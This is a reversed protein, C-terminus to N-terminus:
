DDKTSEHRVAIMPRQLRDAPPYGMEGEPEKRRGDLFWDANFNKSRRVLIALVLLYGFFGVALGIGYAGFLPTDPKYLAVVTGGGIIGVVSVLDSFHVDGTRHRNIFYVYWGVIAGFCGAGIQQLDVTM